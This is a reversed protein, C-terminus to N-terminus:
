DELLDRTLEIDAIKDIIYERTKDVEILQEVPDITITNNGSLLSYMFPHRKSVKLGWSAAYFIKNPVRELNYYLIGPLYYMFKNFQSTPPLVSNVTDIWNEGQNYVNVDTSIDEKDTYIKERLLTKKTTKHPYFIRQKIGLESGNKTEYHYLVYECFELVNWEGPIIRNNVVVPSIHASLATWHESLTGKGTMLDIFFKVNYKHKGNYLFTKTSDDLLSGSGRWNVCHPCSMSTMVLVCKAM